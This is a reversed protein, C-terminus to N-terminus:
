CVRVFEGTLLDASVLTSTGPGLGLIFKIVEAAQLSAAFSAVPGTIGAISCPLIGGEDTPCPFIDRYSFSGPTYSFIQAKWGQVGATSMPIDHERCFDDVMYTTAPNDAADIIVDRGNGESLLVAPTVVKRIVQINIEENLDHMREALIDAKPKGIEGERFFVQRHLNSLDITDYDAIAINGVGAGALYMAVSSGLAGCGIILISARKLKEQGESGIEPLRSQAIYRNM